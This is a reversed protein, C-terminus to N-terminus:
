TRPVTRSGSTQTTLNDHRSDDTLKCAACCSLQHAGFDHEEIPVILKM